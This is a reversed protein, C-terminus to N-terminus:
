QPGLPGLPGGGPPIVPPCIPPEVPPPPPPPPPMAGGTPAPPLFPEGTAPPAESRPPNFSIGQDEFEVSRAKRRSTDLLPIPQSPCPWSCNTFTGGGVVYGTRIRMRMDPPLPNIPVARLLRRSASPWETARRTRRSALTPSNVHSGTPPVNSGAANSPQSATM